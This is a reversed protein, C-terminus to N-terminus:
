LNDIVFKVNFIEIVKRFNKSGNYSLGNSKAYDSITQLNLYSGALEIIKVLGENDLEGDEIRKSLHECITNILM